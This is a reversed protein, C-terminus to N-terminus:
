NNHSKKNVRQRIKGRIRYFWYSIRQGFFAIVAYKVLHSLTTVLLFLLMNVKLLSATVSFLVWPISTFASVFLYLTNWREMRNVVWAFGEVSIGPINDFLFMAVPTFEGEPTLWLMGAITFSILSGVVTGAVASLILQYATKNTFTALILFLTTIPAPLISSDALAFLFVFINGPNTYTKRRTDDDNSIFLPTLTERLKTRSLRGSLLLKFLTVIRM